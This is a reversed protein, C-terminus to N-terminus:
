NSISLCLSSHTLYVSNMSQKLEGYLYHIFEQFRHILKYLAKLDKISIFVKIFYVKTKLVSVLLLLNCFGLTVCRSMSGLDYNVSSCYDM